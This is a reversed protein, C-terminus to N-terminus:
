FGLKEKVFVVKIRGPTVEKNIILIKNIGSHMSYADMARKDELPFVHKEIRKLGEKFDKVIKQVGIVFIVKGAGYVYAPMQSGTASAVMIQGAETVAHASGVVIEPTAGLKNMELKQTKPEMSYLKDRVSNYKGSKNIEKAIGTEDLTVSTMTMVESNEPVLELVRNKAKEKNGAVEADIGNNKLAEITKEIVDESALIDWKKM